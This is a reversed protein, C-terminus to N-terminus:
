FINDLQVITGKIFEEAMEEYWEEIADDLAFQLDYKLDTSYDYRTRLENEEIINQQIRWAMIKRGTAGTYSYKKFRGSKLEVNVYSVGQVGKRSIWAEIASLPPVMQREANSSSGAIEDLKGGYKGWPMNVTIFVDDLLGTKDDITSRVTVNNAFRVRSISRLLKGTVSQGNSKIADKFRQKSDFDKLTRVVLARLRGRQQSPTLM